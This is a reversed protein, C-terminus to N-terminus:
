CGVDIKLENIQRSLSSLLEGNQHLVSSASKSSSRRQVVQDLVLAKHPSRLLQLAELLATKGTNNKGAVLNILKLEPVDLEPFALFNKIHLHDIM